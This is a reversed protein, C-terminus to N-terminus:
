KLIRLIMTTKNFRTATLPKEVTTLKKFSVVSGAFTSPINKLFEEPNRVVKSTSNDLDVNLLTTGSFLFVNDSILHKTTRNNADYTILERAGLVDLPTFKGSSDYQVKKITDTKKPPKVTRTRSKSSITNIIAVVSSKLLKATKKDYADSNTSIDTLISEAIQNITDRETKTVSRHYNFKTVQAHTTLVTDILYDFFTTADDVFIKKRPALQQSPQEAHKVLSRAISLMKQTDYGDIIFGRDLMRCLHGSNTFFNPKVNNLIATLEPELKGVFDIFMEKSDEPSCEVSYYNLADGIHTNETDPENKLRIM